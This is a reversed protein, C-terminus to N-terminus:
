RTKKGKGGKGKGGKGKGSGAFGGNGPQGTGPPNLTPIFSPTQFVVEMEDLADGEELSRQPKGKTRPM